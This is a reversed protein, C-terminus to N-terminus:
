LLSLYLYMMNVFTKLGSLLLTDVRISENILSFDTWDGTMPLLRCVTVRAMRRPNRGACGGRDNIM